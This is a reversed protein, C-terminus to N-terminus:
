GPLRRRGPLRWCWRGSFAPSGPLIVPLPIRRAYASHYAVYDAAGVNAFLPYVVLQAMWIQGLVWFLLACWAVLVIHQADM